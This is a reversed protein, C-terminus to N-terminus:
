KNYWTIYHNKKKHKKLWSVNCNVPEIEKGDKDVIYGCGDYNLICTSDVLSIFHDFTYVDGFGKKFLIRMCNSYEAKIADEEAYTDANKLSEAYDFLISGIEFDNPMRYIENDKIMM